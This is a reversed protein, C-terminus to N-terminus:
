VGEKLFSKGFERRFDERTGYNEEFHKQARERWRDNMEKNFHIGNPGTHHERCLPIVYGWQESKRRNAIGYFIHHRETYPSGCVVCLSGFDWKVM